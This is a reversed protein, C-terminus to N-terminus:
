RAGRIGCRRRAPCAAGTRSRRRLSRRSSTRRRRHARSLGMENVLKNRGEPSAIYRVIETCGTSSRARCGPAMLMQWPATDFGKVTDDIPPINPLSVIRKATTVGIARVKGAAIQPLAPPPDSFLLPIHGAIVDNLAPATGRYPVHTMQVGTLSKFMEGYLHHSAGVGGSGFSLKGPNEKAYKILDAVSNIPLAPNIVLIFPLHAVLAIPQFDKVPDYTIKKYLTPNVAMASSTAMLLTHGDPAAKAVANVGVQQGAGPRNEVVFPKGIRQEWVQAAIRALLDTSGAPTFPVVVTVTKSPWDQASAPIIPSLVLFPWLLWRPTM